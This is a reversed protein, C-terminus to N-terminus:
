LEVAQFSEASRLVFSVFISTIEAAYTMILQKQKKSIHEHKELQIIQGGSDAFWEHCATCPISIGGMLVTGGIQHEARLVRNGGRPFSFDGHYSKTVSHRNQRVMESQRVEKLLITM